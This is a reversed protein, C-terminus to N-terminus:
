RPVIAQGGDKRPDGAAEFGGDATMAVASVAGLARFEKLPHGYRGLAERVAPPIGPEV